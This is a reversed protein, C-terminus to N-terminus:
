DITAIIDRVVNIPLLKGPTKFSYKGKKRIATIAQIISDETNNCTEYREFSNFYRLMKERNDLEMTILIIKDSSALYYIKGPIQTGYLNGVSVVIDAGNELEKAKSQPVRKYVKIKDTSDLSLDTNGAITLSVNNLRDCANYLPMIDRTQSNYDGVFAIKLVEEENLCIEKTSLELDDCMLPAFHIKNAYKPHNHAQMEATFPSVYIISDASKIMKEEISKIYWSPFINRRSVDGFLPDGWHQIWKGYKLGNNICELTFLHSTKPDSTSIVIDFYESYIDLEKALPIYEKTRDFLNVKLYISRLSMLIKSKFGSSSSNVSAIKQGLSKNKLRIINYGSLDHSSDYYSVNEDLSPMIITIEYGLEELGKLLGFNSLSVSTNAELPFLTIFLVKM